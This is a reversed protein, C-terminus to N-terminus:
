RALPVHLIVGTAYVPPWVTVSHRVGQWQWVVAAARENQGLREADSSFRLGAGNPLSGDPLDIARAAAVIAPGDVEGGAEAARPLVERFLAWGAAFGSVGEETPEGGTRERWVAAFRDYTARAAPTLADPDFGSTPRDSAFVGIADAGLAAGFEPGCEAMTSGILAKANFGSALMARRFAIGDPIHSALIVIDPRVETLEDFVRDWDPHNLDYTTRLAVRLGNARATREAGDAVSSAYDDEAVVLAVSLDEPAVGLRPALETAAFTASNSGLNSGTAGVRFVLPLGRGTLQDAVAGAEWYVLGADSAAQSVIMSIESAYAGVVAAVGQSALRAIADPARTRVALDEVLLEVPRGDIGGDDNVLDRAIEVGLLQERALPEANTSLPFVAGIRIPTPGLASALLSGGALAVALGVLGVVLRNM